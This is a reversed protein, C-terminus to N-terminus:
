AAQVSWGSKPCWPGKDVAQSDAIPIRHGFFRVIGDMDAYTSVYVGCHPCKATTGTTAESVKEGVGSLRPVRTAAVRVAM